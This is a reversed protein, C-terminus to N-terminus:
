SENGCYPCIGSEDPEYFNKCVKCEYLQDLPLSTSVDFLRLIQEAAENYTRIENTLHFKRIIDIIKDKM